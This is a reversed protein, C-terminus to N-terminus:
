RKTLVLQERLRVCCSQTFDSLHRLEEAPRVERNVFFKLRMAKPGFRGALGIGGFLFKSLRRM